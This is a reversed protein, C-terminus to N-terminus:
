AASPPATEATPRATEDLWSRLAYGRRHGPTCFELSTDDALAALARALATPGTPRPRLPYRVPVPKGVHITVSAM